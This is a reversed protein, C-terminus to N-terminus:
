ETLQGKLFAALVGIYQDSFDFRIGALQYIEPITKTNGAELARKYDRIAAEGEKLSRMWIALAGLQAFGYEIYYFPVEYLHLQRQWSYYTYPEYQSYDVKGTSFEQNIRKWRQNIEEASEQPHLYVEHQFKDITAIWPLTLIIDELQENLARTLEATGEFFENWNPRTLLEMSMSALEAVEASTEKYAALELNRTLMSHVAHGAEHILTEVDRLSGSANMFIFPVGTKSLPYNYGGPAKGIRSELDLQKMEELTSLTYEFFADTKELCLKTKSLLEEANSFPKLPARGFMDVELDFPQLKDLMMAKKRKEHISAALPVIHKRISEHFRACDDPTYDFRNLAMFMYDRFNDFGANLSMQHRISRLKTFIDSLQDKDQYRRGQIKEYVVQRLSRDNEKLLLGAQSLTLEKGQHMVTMNGQVSSYAQALSQAETQLPINEERFLEAETKVRKLYLTLAEHRSDAFASVELMKKNLGDQYPALVPQIEEVFKLYHEKIGEDLTNCTMRIYRWAFDESVYSELESRQRLWLQFDESSQIAAHILKEYYPLIDSATALKLDAPLFAISSM